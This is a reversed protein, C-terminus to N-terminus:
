PNSYSSILREIVDDVDASSSWGLLSILELPSGASMTIDTPRFLTPDLVVHDQWNLNLLSFAQDVFYELKESRGTCIIHDKLPDARTILQIAEIYEAAWGWDRYIQLNGLRLKLSPHSACAIAANIIKHTVFDSSRYSSEHNFLIGTVCNLDYTDRYLKVLDFAASKAIGYPSLPMRLSSITAPFCTNGFVESSGAFFYRANSKLLKASELIYSSLMVISQITENPLQFSKGVSSQAALNYVEDPVIEAILEMVASQSNLNICSIRFNANVNIKSAFSLNQSDLRTFAYVLSNQKVLSNCLLIGDQGTAGFIIVKNQRL